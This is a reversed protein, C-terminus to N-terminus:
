QGHHRHPDYTQLVPPAALTGHSVLEQQSGKEEGVLGM